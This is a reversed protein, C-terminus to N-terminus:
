QTFGGVSFEFVLSDEVSLPDLPVGLVVQLPGFPSFWLLGGGYAYRWERVDFLTDGEAFANGGDVFAVAQLGVEESIPFRYEFSTTVFKNGGVVDTEDLDEFDDIDDDELDNCKGNGNGGFSNGASGDVCEWEDTTGSKLKRGVPTFISGVGFFDAAPNSDTRRLIARRPGVSRAKYGRLQFGGIGGLFYRETLPLTLNDNIEDLPAAESCAGNDCDTTNDLGPYAFDSMTNWSYAYGARGSFVFSSNDFMWRPAGMFWSHRGEFRVFKAFGGLGSFEMSGSTLYGATPSFRDNRTDKRFSLGLMSSSENGQLLERFIPASANVFTDQEIKRQSYSYRVFGRANGAENLAHGLSLDFGRTRQKFDDFDVNTMFVTATSSFTSGLFYPDSLSFHYRSTNGGLDATLNAGYGRGFRNTESLSAKFVQKDQSSFGGGVSVSGTPREVVEIDLDLQAPDDTPRPEFGVNEFFGLRNVRGNSIQLDRASYLQGEVIQVERRIVKDVTRTNGAINIHRIFYLPGKQVQFEVDILKEAESLQTGPQVSAFYFGRDTYHRELKEVDETLHSRNFIEGESLKLKRRLVEFDVSRDGSLKINGVRFQPGENIVVRITLGKESADIKPAGVDVQLFGEDQYIKTVQRLDRMFIPESYVGSQDFWSTMWSWPRWLNTAFDERLRSDSFEENGIFIVKKLRLKENEEVEFHVAVSGETITEIEYGAKALFYGQARYMQEIRSVNIGLLSRDLTSGTTLTLADKIDDAEVSDNGEITIQRVVPNEVVEFIVIRGDATLESYVRVDNFFGLRFIEKVDEAIQDARLPSGETSGIRTLIAEADIRKNGRVRIESITEAEEGGGGQVLIMESRVVKYELVIGEDQREVELTVGVVGPHEELRVRDRHVVTPDYDAGEASSLIEFFRGELDGAGTIAISLIQSTATGAVSAISRDVLEGLRGHLEDESDAIIVITRSKAPGAPTVQVDMSFQGALETISGSIVARVGLRRALDKLEADSLDLRDPNGLVELVRESRVVSVKGTDELRTALFDALSVTIYGLPRASHTRFPLVALLIPEPPPAPPLASEGSTEVDSAAVGAEVTAGDASATADTSDSGEASSSGEASPSGEASDSGSSATAEQSDAAAEVELAEEQVVSEVATPDVQASAAAVFFVMGLLM